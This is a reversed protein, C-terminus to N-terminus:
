TVVARAAWASATLEFPPEPLRSRCEAMLRDRADDDLAAVHDGAPGVGMTFPEWWDEFSTFGVTVDIRDAEVGSCGALGFLEALHGERVGARQSEDDVPDGLSRVASWFLSLPGGSEGAHDWVCASVV